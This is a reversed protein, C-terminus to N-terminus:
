AERALLAKLTLTKFNPKRRLAEKMLGENKSMGADETVLVDCESAASAMIVCDVFDAHYSRLEIAMAM